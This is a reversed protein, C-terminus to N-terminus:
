VCGTTVWNQVTCLIALSLKLLVKSFLMWELRLVCDSERKYQPFSSFEIRINKKYGKNQGVIKKKVKAIKRDLSSYILGQGKKKTLRGVAWFVVPNSNKTM